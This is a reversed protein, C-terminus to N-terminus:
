WRFEWRNLSKRRKECGDCPKIGMAGTAKRILDGLGLHNRGKALRKLEERSIKM